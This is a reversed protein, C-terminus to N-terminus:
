RGASVGAGFLSTGPFLGRISHRCEPAKAEPHAAPRGVVGLRSMALYMKMVPPTTEESPLPMVAAEMPRRSMAAPQADAHQLHIRIEIDVGAGHAGVLVAFHVDGVVADFGVEVEAVVLAKGALGGGALGRDGGAADVPVHELLLAAAVVEAVGDLHDRVDGVLDFRADAGQGLRADIDHHGLDAARHAIDFAQGEELGDALDPQLLPAVIDHIHVHGVQGVNAGGAFEFGLGALLAHGFQAFDADQGVGEDAARFRGEGVIDAPFEREKAVDGDMGDDLFEIDAMRDVFHGQDQRFLAEVFDDQDVEPHRARGRAHRRPLGHDVGQHMRGLTTWIPTTPL